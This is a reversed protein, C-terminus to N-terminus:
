CVVMFSHHVQQNAHTVQSAEYLLMVYKVCAHM